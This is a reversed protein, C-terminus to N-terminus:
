ITLSALSEIIYITKLRIKSFQKDDNNVAITNLSLFNDGEIVNEKSISIYDIEAVLRYIDIKNKKIM